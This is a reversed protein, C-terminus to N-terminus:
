GIMKWPVHQFPRRPWFVLRPIITSKIKGSQFHPTEPALRKPDIPTQRGYRRVLDGGM